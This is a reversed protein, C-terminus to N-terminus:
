ILNLLTEPKAIKLLGAVPVICRFSFNLSMFNHLNLIFRVEQRAIKDSIMLKLEIQAFEKNEHSTM